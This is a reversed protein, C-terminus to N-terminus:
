RGKPSTEDTLAESESLLRELEAPMVRKAQRQAVVLALDAVTPNLFLDRLPLEIHFAERTRSIVRGALLSDGGLEFFNDHVGIRDLGVVSMWIGTLTEEVPTRPECYPNDLEPRNAVVYGVRPKGGPSKM